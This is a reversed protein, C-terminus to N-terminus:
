SVPSDPDNYVPSMNLVIGVKAGPVQARIEKVAVGHAMLLHHAALIGMSRDQMGPAHEGITYSLHSACWPENITYWTKVRDGLHRTVVGTYEAFADVVSRNLWANELASPLDWHYLTPM